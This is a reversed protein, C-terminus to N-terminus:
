WNRDLPRCFPIQGHRLVPGDCFNSSRGRWSADGTGSPSGVSSRHPAARRTHGAVVSEVKLDGCRSCSGLNRCRSHCRSCSGLNRSRSHCRCQGDRDRRRRKADNASFPGVLSRAPYRASSCSRQRRFSPAARMVFVTEYRLPKARDPRKREYRSTSDRRKTQECGSWHSLAKDISGRVGYCYNSCNMLFSHGV